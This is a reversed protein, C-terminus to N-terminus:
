NLRPAFQVDVNAYQRTQLARDQCDYTESPITQNVREGGASIDQARVAFVKGTGGITQNGIQDGWVICVAGQHIEDVPYSSPCGSRDFAYVPYLQHPDIPSYGLGPLQCRIWTGATLRMVQTGSTCDTLMDMRVPGDQWQRYLTPFYGDPQYGAIPIPVDLYPQPWPEVPRGVTDVPHFVDVLAQCIPIGQFASVRRVEREAIQGIRLYAEEGVRQLEALTLPRLNSCSKTIAGAAAPDLRRGYGPVVDGYKGDHWADLCDSRLVASGDDRVLLDSSANVRSDPCTVKLVVRAPSLASTDLTRRASRGTLSARQGALVRKDSATLRCGKLSTATSITVTSRTSSSTHSFAFQPPQRWPREKVVLHQGDKVVCKWTWGDERTVRGERCENPAPREAFGLMIMGFGTAGLLAQFSPDAKTLDMCGSVAGHPEVMTGTTDVCIVDEPTPTWTPRAMAASGPLIPLALLAAAFPVLLHRRRHM